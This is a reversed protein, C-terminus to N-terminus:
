NPWLQFTWSLVWTLGLQPLGWPYRWATAKESEHSTEARRQNNIGKEPEVMCSSGAEQTWTWYSFGARKLRPKLFFFFRKSPGIPGAQIMPGNRLWNSCDPIAPNALSVRLCGHSTGCGSNLLDETLFSSRQKANLHHKSDLSNTDSPWSVCIESCLFLFLITSIGSHSRLAENNQEPVIKNIQTM